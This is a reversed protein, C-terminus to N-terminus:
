SQKRFRRRAFGALGMLGTGLLAMSTPEPVPTASQISTATISEAGDNGVQCNATEATACGAVAGSGIYTNTFNVGNAAMAALLAAQQAADLIFVFGSSGQGQGTFAFTNPGSCFAANNCFNPALPASFIVDGSATYFSAVLNSLTIGDDSVQNGNFLLALQHTADVGLSSLSVFNLKPAGNPIQNAGGETCFNGANVTTGAFNNDATSFSGSIPTTTAVATASWATCGQEVGNDAPQAQLTFLTTVTGFGFATQDQSPFLVLSARASAFPAAVLAAVAVRFLLKKMM